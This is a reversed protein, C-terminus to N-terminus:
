PVSSGGKALEGLLTVQDVKKSKVLSDVSCPCISNTHGVSDTSSSRPHYVIEDSCKATLM